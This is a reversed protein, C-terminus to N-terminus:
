YNTKISVSITLFIDSIGKAPMNKLILFLLKPIVLVMQKRGRFGRSSEKAERCKLM